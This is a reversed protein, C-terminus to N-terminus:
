APVAAIIDNGYKGVAYTITVNAGKKCVECFKEDFTAYWDEGIKWSYRNSGKTTPKVSEFAIVGTVTLADSPTEQEPAPAAKAKPRQMPAEGSKIDDEDLEIDQTFIDSAATCTLTADVLARKKAMKLVTNAQDAPITHIQNIQIVGGGQKKWITRRLYDPTCDFEEQCLAARWAYKTESTSAEGIGSGVFAGNPTILRCKVRYRIEGEASVDEVVPDVALRFTAIIKEAGSKFLVKKEGAGPITGYHEGNKMVSAMVEQILNVQARIEKATCPAVQGGEGVVTMEQMTM